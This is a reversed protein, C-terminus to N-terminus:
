SWLETIELKNIFVLCLYVYVFKYPPMACQIDQFELPTNWIYTVVHLGVYKQKDDKIKVIQESTKGWLSHGLGICDEFHAQERKDEDPQSVWDKKKQQAYMSDDFRM